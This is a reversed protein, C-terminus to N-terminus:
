RNSAALTGRACVFVFCSYMYLRTYTYTYVCVPSTPFLARVRPCCILMLVFRHLYCVCFASGIEFYTQICTNTLNQFFVAHKLVTVNTHECIYM